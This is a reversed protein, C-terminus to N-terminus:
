AALMMIATGDPGITRARGNSKAEYLRQDALKMSQQFTADDDILAIGASATVPRDLDKVDMAVRSTVSQRLWEVIELPRDSYVLLVFEEGGIRAAFVEDSNITKAVSIIVRDGQDHGYTDNIQKFHDIDVIALADPRHRLFQSELNRRNYLGTLPDTQAMIEMAAARSRAEEGVRKLRAMRGGVAISTVLMELALTVFLAYLFPGFPRGLVTDYFLSIGCVILPCIWAVLQYRAMTSGRTIALFLSASILLLVGILVINRFAMYAPPAIELLMAPTTLAVLVPQCYLFRDLRRPLIGPELLTRLFPGSIAISTDFLLNILVQRAYSEGSLWPGLSLSSLSVTLGVLVMIRLSQWSM